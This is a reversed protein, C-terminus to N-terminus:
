KASVLVMSLLIKFHWFRIQLCGRLSATVIVAGVAVYDLPCQMREAIDILWAQYPEPILEPHLPIVPSLDSRIAKLPTPNPWERQPLDKDIFQINSKIQRKVEDLGELVHLDNFDTPKTETNKFIPFVFSCGYKQAVEEAKTRGTNTEKWRDDDGAITLSSNPYAKRLAEVVSELNGADFAIVTALGTAMHVSAGTAYGETVYIPKGDELFGLTHFCGKKRGGTLFRKTGDPGIWQLSLLKGTEDNLPVVFSDGEFRIGFPYVKKATLYLSSGTESFSNWKELATRATEEQKQIKETEAIRSTAEIQHHLSERDRFVGREQGVSWKGQIDQKWDGFAGAMGHFVYWGDKNGRGHNAFRHIQGDAIIDDRCVIGSNLMTNKFDEVM